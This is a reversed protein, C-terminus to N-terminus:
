RRKEVRGRFRIRFRSLPLLTAGTQDDITETVKLLGQGCVVVPRADELFIVKGPTRNAIHVDDLAEAALIRIVRGDLTAAAGKYPFGVADIFRKIEIASNSWEVFYDDEDRWLSYSADAEEQPRATPACGQSLSEAIEATLAEYHGVILTIADRIRLPHSIVSSSQAIIDGCDYESTAYLATVGIENDGNILATVLPNFGRYRPLLSDHFVIMRTSGADILWRWSVALAYGTQISYGDSRDYFRINRSHCLAAIEDFYDEAINRDRSAVVASVLSPYRSLLLKVVSFGKETMAFVTLTNV